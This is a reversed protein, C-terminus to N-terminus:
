QGADKILIDSVFTVLSLSGPKNLHFIPQFHALIQKSIDKVLFTTPKSVLWSNQMPFWKVLKQRILTKVLFEKQVSDLLNTLIEFLTESM